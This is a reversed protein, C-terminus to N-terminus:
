NAPPERSPPKHGDPWDEDRDLGHRLDFALGNGFWNPRWNRPPRVPQTPGHEDWEGQVLRHSPKM